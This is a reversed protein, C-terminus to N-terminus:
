SRHKGFVKAGDTSFRSVVALPLWLRLHSHVVLNVYIVAGGKTDCAYANEAFINQVAFAYECLM